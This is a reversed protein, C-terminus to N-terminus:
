CCCGCPCFNRSWEADTAFLDRLDWTTEEMVETRTRIKEMQIKRRRANGIDKMTGYDALRYM